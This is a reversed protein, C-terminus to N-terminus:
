TLQFILINCLCVCPFIQIRERLLNVPEGSKVKVGAVRRNYTCMTSPFNRHSPSFIFTYKRPLVRRAITDNDEDM